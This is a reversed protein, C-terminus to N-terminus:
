SAQGNQLWWICYECADENMPEVTKNGCKCLARKAECIPCVADLILKGNCKDCDDISTGDEEEEDENDETSLIFWDPEKPYNM